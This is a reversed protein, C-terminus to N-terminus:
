LASGSGSSYGQIRGVSGLMHRVAAVSLDQCRPKVATARFDLTLFSNLFM